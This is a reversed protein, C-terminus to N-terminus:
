RCALCRKSLCGANRRDHLQCNSAPHLLFWDTEASVRKTEPNYAALLHEFVRGLLEPDLAVDEEITTNEEVTFKYSELLPILGQSGDTGKQFFLRNPINLQEYCDVGFCDIYDGGERDLCDFLGGNIFPSKAFWELLTEPDTMEDKYCYHSFTRDNAHTGEM